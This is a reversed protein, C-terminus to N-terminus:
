GPFRGKKLQVQLQVVSENYRKDTEDSSKLTEFLLDLNKQLLGLYRISIRRLFMKNVVDEFAFQSGIDQDWLDFKQYLMKLDQSQKVDPFRIDTQMAFVRDSQVFAIKNEIMKEILDKSQQIGFHQHLEQTEIGQRALTLLVFFHYRAKEQALFHVQKITLEPQGAKGKHIFSDEEGSAEPLLDMSQRPQFLHKFKPFLEQCYVLVVKEADESRVGLAIQNIIQASPSAKGQELKMFYPYNCSLGRSVLFNFSDKASKYGYGKRIAKLLRGFSKM